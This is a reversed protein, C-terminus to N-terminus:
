ARVPAHTAAARELGLLAVALLLFFGVALLNRLADIGMVEHIESAFALRQASRLVFLLVFAYIVPRLRRPDWAAAAAIVGLAIMFAGLPKIVYVFEPTFTMEAGYLAAFFPLSGPFLNVSAGIAFHSASIFWLLISLARLQWSTM